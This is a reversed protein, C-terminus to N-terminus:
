WTNGHDAASSHNAWPMESMLWLFNHQLLTISELMRERFEQAYDLAAVADLSSTASNQLACM